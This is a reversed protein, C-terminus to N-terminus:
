IIDWKDPTTSKRIKLVKKGASYGGNKEGISCRKYVVRIVLVKAENEITKKMIRKENFPAGVM